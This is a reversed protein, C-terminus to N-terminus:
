LLRNVDNRSHAHDPGLGLYRSAPDRAPLLNKANSHKLLATMENPQAVELLM